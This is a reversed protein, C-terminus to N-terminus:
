FLFLKNEEWHLQDGSGVSPGLTARQLLASIHKDRQLVTQFMCDTKFYTLTFNCLVVSVIARSAIKPPRMKVPNPHKQLPKIECQRHCSLCGIPQNVTSCRHDPAMQHRRIWSCSGECVTKLLSMWLHKWVKCNM